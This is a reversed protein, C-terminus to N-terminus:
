SSPSAGWVFDHGVFGLDVDGHNLLDLSSHFGLDSERHQLTFSLKQAEPSSSTLDLTKEM